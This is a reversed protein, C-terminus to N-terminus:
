DPSVMQVSSNNGVRVFVGPTLLVEVRGNQTMIGQGPQLALSGAAQQNLPAGNMTAQGEIYNVTGVPPPGMQQQMQPQRGYQQPPNSQPPNNYGAPPQAVVLVTAFFLGGIGKWITRTM